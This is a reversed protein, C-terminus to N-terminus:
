NIDADKQALRLFWEHFKNYITKVTRILAANSKLGNGTFKFTSDDISFARRPGGALSRNRKGEAGRNIQSMGAEFTYKKAEDKNKFYHGYDHDQHIVTATETIDVVHSLQARAKYILWNDWAGRGIAFPPISKYFRKPFVFYDIAYRTELKGNSLALERLCNQWGDLFDLPKEICLNRRRGVILCNNLHKSVTNIANIFDDMLIIDANVYCVNNYIASQQALEFMSSILPTGYENRAVESIHMLSLEKSIEATGDDSGFLIIQPKPKLLCWSQIANRQIINIHGKFPKCTSFITLM